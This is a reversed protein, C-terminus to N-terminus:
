RLKAQAGPFVKVRLTSQGAAAASFLLLGFALLGRIM